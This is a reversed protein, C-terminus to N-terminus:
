KGKLSRCQLYRKSLTSQKTTKCKHGLCARSYVTVETKGLYCLKKDLVDIWMDKYYINFAM